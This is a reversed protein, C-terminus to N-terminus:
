KQFHKRPPPSLPTPINFPLRFYDAYIHRDLEISNSDEQIPPVPDDLPIRHLWEYGVMNHTLHDMNHQLKKMWSQRDEGNQAYLKPIWHAISESMLKFGYLSDSPEMQISHYYKLEIVGSPDHDDIHKYYRLEDGYLKFYRLSLNHGFSFKSAKYLWGQFLPDELLSM